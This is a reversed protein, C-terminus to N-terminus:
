AGRDDSRQQSTRWPHAVRREALLCGCSKTSGSRLHKVWVAKTTGCDCRCVARRGNDGSPGLSLIVLRGYRDGVVVGARTTRGDAVREATMGRGCRACVYGASPGRVVWVEATCPCSIRYWHYKSKPPRQKAPGQWQPEPGWAPNWRGVTAAM